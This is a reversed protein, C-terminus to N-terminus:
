RTLRRMRIFCSRGHVVYDIGLVYEVKPKVLQRLSLPKGFVIFEVLRNGLTKARRKRRGSLTFQKMPAFGCRSSQGFNNDEILKRAIHISVLSRRESM